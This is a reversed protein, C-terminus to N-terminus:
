LTSWHFSLLSAHLLDQAHAGHCVNQHASTPSQKVSEQPARISQWAMIVTTVLPTQKTPVQLCLPMTLQRRQCVQEDLILIHQEHCGMGYACPFMTQIPASHHMDPLGQSISNKTLHESRNHQWLFIRWAIFHNYLACALLVGNLLCAEMPCALHCLIQYAAPRDTRKSAWELLVCGYLFHNFAVPPEIEQSM